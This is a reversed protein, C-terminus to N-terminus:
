GRMVYFLYIIVGSTVSLLITALGPNEGAGEWVIPYKESLEEDQWLYEYDGVQFLKVYRVPITQTLEQTPSIVTIVGSLEFKGALHKRTFLHFKGIKEIRFQYDSVTFRIHYIDAQPSVFVTWGHQQWWQQWQNSLPQTVTEDLDGEVSPYVANSDSPIALSDSVQLAISNLASQLLGSPTPGSQGLLITPIILMLCIELFRKM